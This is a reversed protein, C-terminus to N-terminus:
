EEDGALENVNNTSQATNSEEDNTEDSQKVLNGTNFDRAVSDSQDGSQDGEESNIQTELNKLKSAFKDFSTVDNGEEEDDTNALEKVQNNFQAAISDQADQSIVTENSEEDSSEEDADTSEPGKAETLQIM